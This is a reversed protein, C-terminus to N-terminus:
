LDLIVFGFDLIGMASVVPVVAGEKVRLDLVAV